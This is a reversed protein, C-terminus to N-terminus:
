RGPKPPEPILREALVPGKTRFGNYPVLLFLDRGKFPGSMARFAALEGGCKIYELPTDVDVRVVDAVGSLPDSKKALEDFRALDDIVGGHVEVNAYYIGGPQFPRLPSSKQCSGLLLCWSSLIAGVFKRRNRTDRANSM